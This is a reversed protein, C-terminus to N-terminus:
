CRGGGGWGGENGGRGGGGGSGKEGNLSHGLELVSRGLVFSLHAAPIRSAFQLIEHAPPQAPYLSVASTAGVGM